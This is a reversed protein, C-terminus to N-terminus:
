QSTKFYFLNIKIKIKQFTSYFLKCRWLLQPDQHFLFDDVYVSYVCIEETIWDTLRGPIITFFHCHSLPRHCCQWCKQSRQSFFSNRLLVLRQRGQSSSEREVILDIEYIVDGFVLEAELLLRRYVYKDVIYGTTKM